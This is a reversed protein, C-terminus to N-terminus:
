TGEGAEVGDVGARGPPAPFVRQFLLLLGLDGDPVLDGRLVAAMANVRGAVMGEFTSRELRLVADADADRHDVTVEGDAVTLYWREVQEGTLVDFRLTGSANKLLPERGRSELDRFFADTPSPTESVAM